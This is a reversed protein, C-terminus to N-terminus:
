LPFLIYFLLQVFIYLIYSFFFWVSVFIV